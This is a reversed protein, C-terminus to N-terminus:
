GQEEPEPDVPEPEPEPEPAAHYYCERKVLHGEDSLIVVSHAALSSMAAYQLIGHFKAEAADRTEATQMLHAATGDHNKQIEIIFFM